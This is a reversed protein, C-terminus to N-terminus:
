KALCKSKLIRKLKKERLVSKFNLESKNIICFDTEIDIIPCTCLKCGDYLYLYFTDCIHNNIFSINEYCDSYGKNILITIIHKYNNKNVIIYKGALNM